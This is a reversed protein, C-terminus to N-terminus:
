IKSAIAALDAQAAIFSKVQADSLKIQKVEQAAAAAAFSMIAFAAVLWIRVNKMTTRM